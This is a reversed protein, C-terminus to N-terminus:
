MANVKNFAQVMKPIQIALFDILPENNAWDVEVDIGSEYIFAHILEHRIFRDVVEQLSEKDGEEREKTCVYIKKVSTDCWGNVEKFLSHSKEDVLIIEYETGLVNVTKKLGM